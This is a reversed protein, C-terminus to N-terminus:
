RSLSEDDRSLRAMPDAKYIGELGGAERANGILTKSESFEASSFFFASMLAVDEFAPAKGEPYEHKLTAEIDPKEVEEVITLEGDNKRMDHVIGRAIPYMFHNISLRVNMDFLDVDTGGQEPSVNEVEGREEIVRQAFDKMGEQNTPMEITFSQEGVPQMEWGNGWLQAMGMMTTPTVFATVVDEAFAKAEEQVQAEGYTEGNHLEALAHSVKEFMLGPNDPELLVMDKVEVGQEELYAKAWLGAHTGRCHATIEVEDDKRIAPIVEEDLWQKAGEVLASVHEYFEGNRPDDLEWTSGPFVLRVTEELVNGEGVEGRLAAIAQFGIADDRVESLVDMTMSEKGARKSSVGVISGEDDKHYIAGIKKGTKQFVEEGLAHRLATDEIIRDVLWEEDRVPKAGVNEIEDSM